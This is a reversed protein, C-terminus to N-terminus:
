PFTKIKRTNFPGLILSLLRRKKIALDMVSILALTFTFLGASHNLQGDNLAM